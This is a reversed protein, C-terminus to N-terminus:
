PSARCRPGARRRPRRRQGSRDVESRSGTPEVVGTGARVSRVSGLGSGRRHGGEVLKGAALGAGTPGGGLHRREIGPMEARRPGVNRNGVEPRACAWAGAPLQPDDLQVRGTRALLPVPRPEPKPARFGRTRRFEGDGSGAIALVPGCRHSPRLGRRHRLSAARAVGGRGPGARCRTRLRRPRSSRAPRETSRAASRGAVLTCPGVGLGVRQGDGARDAQAQEGLPGAAPVFQGLGQAALAHGLVRGSGHELAEALDSQDVVGRQGLLPHVGPVGALPEAPARQGGLQAALTNGVVHRAVRQLLQVGSASSRRARAAPRGCAARCAARSAAFLPGSGGPPNAPM